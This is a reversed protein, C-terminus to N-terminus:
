SHEVLWQSPMYCWKLTWVFDTSNDCLAMTTDFVTNIFASLANHPYKFDTYFSDSHLLVTMTLSCPDSHPYLLWKSYVWHWWSIWLHISSCWSSDNCLVCFNMPLFVFESHFDCLNIVFSPFLVMTLVYLDIYSSLLSIKFVCLRM